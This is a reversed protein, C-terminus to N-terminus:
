GVLKIPEDLELHIVNRVDTARYARTGSDFLLSKQLRTATPENRRMDRSPALDSLRTQQVVNTAAVTNINAAVPRAMNENAQQAAVQQIQNAAMRQTPPAQDTLMLRFADGPGPQQPLSANSPKYKVQSAMVMQEYGALLTQTPSDFSQAMLQAVFLSSVSGVGGAIAAPIPPITFSTPQIGTGSAASASQPQASQKNNQSGQTNNQVAQNIPLSPVAQSTQVIGQPPVISEAPATLMQATPPVSQAFQVSAPLM